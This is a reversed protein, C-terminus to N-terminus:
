GLSKERYKRQRCANSCYKADARMDAGPGVQFWRGCAVCTRHAHNEGVAIAFQLWLASILSTPKLRVRLECRDGDWVVYPMAPHKALWANLELQLLHWAPQVLDGSVLGELIQPFHDPAALVGAAHYGDVKFDFIVEGNRWQIWNRLTGADGQRAAGWLRVLARMSSIEETWAGLTEGNAVSVSQERSARKSTTPIAVPISYRGGLQGYTNAFGLVERREPRLEAFTRFLGSDRMPDYLKYKHPLPVQQETLFMHCRSDLLPHARVWAFGQEPLRWSLAFPVQIEREKM